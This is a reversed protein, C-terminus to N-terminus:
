AAQAQGLRMPDLRDADLLVLLSDKL